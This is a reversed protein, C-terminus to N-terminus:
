AYLQLAVVVDGVLCIGLMMCFVDKGVEEDDVVLAGVEGVLALILALFGERMDWRVASILLLTLSIAVVAQAWGPFGFVARLPHHLTDFRRQLQVNTTLSQEKPSWQAILTHHGDNIGVFVLEPNRSEYPPRAWVEITEFLKLARAQDLAASVPLTLRADSFEELYCRHPLTQRWNRADEASLARGPKGATVDLHIVYSGDM